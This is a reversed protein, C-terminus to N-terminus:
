VNKHYYCFCFVSLTRNRSWEIVSFVVSIGCNEIQLYKKYKKKYIYKLSHKPFLAMYIDECSKIHFFVCSFHNCQNCNFNHMHCKISIFCIGIIICIKKQKTMTNSHFLTPCFQLNYIFM